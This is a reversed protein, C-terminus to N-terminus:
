PVLCVNRRVEELILIGLTKRERFHAKKDEKYVLRVSVCVCALDASPWGITVNYQLGTESGAMKPNFLWKPVQM